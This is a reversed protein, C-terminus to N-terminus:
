RPGAEKTISLLKDLRNKCGPIEKLFNILEDGFGLLYSFYDAEFQADLPDIKRDSHGLYIHGIEHALIALGQRKNKSRLLEVLDPYILILYIKESHPIACAYQGRSPIILLKKELNFFDYLELNFSNFLTDFSHKLDEEKLIWEHLSNKFFDLRFQGKKEIPSKKKFLM